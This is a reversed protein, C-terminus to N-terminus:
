EDESEDGGGFLTELVAASRGTENLYRVVAASSGHTVWVAKPDCADIAHMLGPWDIHDSLIFGRDTARRRRSGRVAMWGSAMGTTIEGFRRAWATGHASPVAVVMAGRWDVKQKKGRRATFRLRGDGDDGAAAMKEADAVYITPPLEIGMDRYAQCGKEVAGHTFIPGISGDLGALLRQSKGVAYGYLLCCLGKAASERWWQNIEDFVSEQTPWRYVPMGFTSETVLLDCPVPVWPACTSDGQEVKYDG